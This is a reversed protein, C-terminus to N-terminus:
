RHPRGLDARVGRPLSRVVLRRTGGELASSRPPRGRACRRGCRPWQGFDSHATRARRPLGRGGRGRRRALAGAGDCAPSRSAASSNRRGVRQHGSGVTKKEDYKYSLIATVGRVRYWGDLLTHTLRRVERMDDRLHDAVRKSCFWARETMGGRKHETSLEIDGRLAGDRLAKWAKKRVTQANGPDAMIRLLDEARVQRKRIKLEKASYAVYAEIMLEDPDRSAEAVIRAVERALAFLREDLARVSGPRAPGTPVRPAAPAPAGGKKPVPATRASKGEAGKALPEGSKPPAGEGGEAAATGIFFLRGGPLLIGVMLGALLLVAMPRRSRPVM